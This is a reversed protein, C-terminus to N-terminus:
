HGAHIESYRDIIMLAHGSPVREGCRTGGTDPRDHRLLAPQPLRVQRWAKLTRLTALPIDTSRDGNTTSIWGDTPHAVGNRLTATNPASQANCSGPSSMYCSHM